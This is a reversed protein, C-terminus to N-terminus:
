RRRRYPNPQPEGFYLLLRSAEDYGASGLVLDYHPADYTALLEFRAARLVGVTSVAYTSRSVLPGALLDDLSWGDITLSVSVSYLPRSRYSYERAERVAHQVIKDIAIPGGRLVVVADEPPKEARLFPEIPELSTM